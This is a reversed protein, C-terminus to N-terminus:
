RDIRSQFQKLYCAVCLYPRHDDHSRRVPGRGITGCDTCIPPEPDLERTLTM